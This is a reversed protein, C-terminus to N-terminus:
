IVKMRLRLFKCMEYGILCGLWNLLIDSTAFTGVYFVYQLTEIGLITLLSVFLFESFRAKLGYLGGLPIFYLVNLIAELITRKDKVIFDFPYLIFARYHSAKAFLVVFLLFLYVSYVLYLYVVSIKRRSYQFYFLWISLSLFVILTQETYEYRSMAGALKPHHELTPFAIWHVVGYSLLCSMVFTIIYNLIKRM